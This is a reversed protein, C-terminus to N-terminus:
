KIAEELRQRDLILNRLHLLKFYANEVTAEHTAIFNNRKKEQTLLQKLEQFEKDEETFLIPNKNSEENLKKASQGSASFKQQLTVIPGELAKTKLFFDVYQALSVFFAKEETFRLLGDYKIQLRDVIAKTNM